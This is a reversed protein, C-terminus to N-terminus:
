VFSARSSSRTAPDAGEPIGSLGLRRVGIATVLGMIAGLVIAAPLVFVIMVWLVFGELREWPQVQILHRWVSDGVWFLVPVLFITGGCIAGALTGRKLTIRERAAVLWWVLPTVVPTIGALAAPLIWSDDEFRATVLFLLGLVLSFLATPLWTETIFRRMVSGEGFLFSV